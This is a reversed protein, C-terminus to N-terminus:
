WYCYETKNSRTKDNNITPSFVITEDFFDQGYFNSNLLLNSIITSKGTRIPSIMLLLSPPKPLIPNLPRPDDDPLDKVPLINLDSNKEM